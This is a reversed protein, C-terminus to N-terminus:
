APFSFYFLPSTLLYTIAVTCPLLNSVTQAWQAVEQIDEDAQSAQQILLPVFPMQYLAQMKVGFTQGLDGLLGVCAKLVENTRDKDAASRHLFEVMGEVFPLVTDQKNAAKLGQLIGTYAELISNRLTNIYEVLDEDDSSINVEGAQKLINLIISTYREFDGEIAMAVDAFLSIVHPKVSRNLVQSQLLELLARMIDDCFPLLATGLARCLDGVVGVAVTCLQHEEVSKLGGLLPGQLYPVYRLFNAGLKEAVFGISMFADEHAVAGKTEFVKFLVTMIRDSFPTIQETDLKKTIEGVLSCLCSQLNMREAAAVQPAFSAELRTLAENLLQVVIPQMDVASNAVMMNVAEYATARM